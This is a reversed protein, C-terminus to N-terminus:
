TRELEAHAACLGALTMETPDLRLVPVGQATLATQYADASAAAGIVAVQQGLWYPKAAALEIGILLGSLRARATAGDLGDLLAEARLGFLRAAIAQPRSIAADVADAFAVDDWGDAAVSHRLVSQRSLLAFLEGTMFTQFSVIEGASLHAWKTHTGPLCAIGDFGDQTAIVGKIQTEEGRMVDAPSRQSVGPLIHVQLRSDQTPVQLATQADPPTCPVNTYPAEAWGQRAGAMGCVIVPVPGQGLVDECLALLAPEYDSPTLAGMGRDSHRADLVSGDAAMLWLRLHTTGWDVAIWDVNM